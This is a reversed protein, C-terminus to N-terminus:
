TSSMGEAELAAELLPRLNPASLTATDWVVDIDV